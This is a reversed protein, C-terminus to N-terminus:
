ALSWHPDHSIGSSNPQVRSDPVLSKNRSRQSPVSFYRSFSIMISDPIGACEQRRNRMDKTFYFIFQLSHEASSLASSLPAYRLNQSLSPSSITQIGHKHWFSRQESSYRLSRIFNKFSLPQVSNGFYFLRAARHPQIPLILDSSFRVPLSFNSFAAKDQSM